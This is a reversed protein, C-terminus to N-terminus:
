RAEQGVRARREQRLLGGVLWALALVTLVVGAQLSRWILPGYRGSIGDGRFCRLIIELAPQGVEDRAAHGIAQAVESSPFDLGIFYRSVVAEPTLVVFGAPHAYQKSRSDYMYRFGCADAVARIAAENGVLFHWGDTARTEGYRRIADTERVTAEAITEHPDLSISVLDYDRGVSPRIARLSAITSDAVVACLQPCRAYGFYLVVPRGHFCDRLPVNKGGTSTFPTELPLRRGLRQEFWVDQASQASAVASVVAYIVLVVTFRCIM